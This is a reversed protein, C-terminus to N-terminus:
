SIEQIIFTNDNASGYSPGFLKVDTIYEIVVKKEQLGTVEFRKSRRNNTERMQINWEAWPYRYIKNTNWTAGSVPAFGKGDITLNNQDIIEELKDILWNPFGAATGVFLKFTRYPDGKVTVENQPQDVYVTRISAPADFPIAGECRFTMQIGTQWLIENNFQNSYQFLLTNPWNEAVQFVESVLTILIPDGGLIELTYCGPLFNDFGIQAELYIVSGITDVISMIQSLVVLGKNNKVQLRIPTFDSRVQIFFIDDNQVKQKYCKVTEFETIQERATWPDFHRWNYNLPLERNADVINFCNLLPVEIYPM